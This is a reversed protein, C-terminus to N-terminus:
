KNPRYDLVEYDNHEQWPVETVLYDISNVIHWGNINYVCGDDGDIRTWVHAPYNIAMFKLFGSDKIDYADFQYVGQSQEINEVPKFQEEFEDDTLKFFSM